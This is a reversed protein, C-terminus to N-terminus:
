DELRNILTTLTDLQDNLGKLWADRNTPTRLTTATVNKTLTKIYNINSNLATKTETNDQTKLELSELLTLLNRSQYLDLNNDNIFDITKDVLTYNPALTNTVELEINPQIM